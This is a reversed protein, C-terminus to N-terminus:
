YDIESRRLNRMHGSAIKWTGSKYYHLSCDIKSVPDITFVRVILRAEAPTICLVSENQEISRHGTEPVCWDPFKYLLLSCIFTYILLSLFRVTLTQPCAHLHNQTITEKAKRGQRAESAEHKKEWIIM